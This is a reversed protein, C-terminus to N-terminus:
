RSISQTLAYGRGVTASLQYVKVYLTAQNSGFDTVQQASTYSVTPTSATLTRKLTAYSGSSYIDVEYSESTEGLPADVYDRWGAFRSRRTWTLTWDNTSPHRSGSLSVPSLCELNVGAYGFSLDADSDLAKGTTIGRYLRASGIASANVSIFQLVADDLLVLRDGTAHLGSAWETGHQGRLFDQLIYSGDPQLTATRAAIIEWRGDAGYAFWNNGAFLQAETVSALTGQYLRVALTSAFDYVTGGHATLSNSAYGIVAGPATFATVDSWSQGNDASSYLIGGPWGSLYGTMAVPFGARDDADRLLPIDLPVYLSPGDVSLVAGTSQGEEGQAAPTYISASAYKAQCEVRGDPLHHTSTLRLSYTAFDGNVTIVDGPELNAHSPPLTLAVDYREMWYLYLLTEAKGAAESGSFVIPLDLATENVADTNIREAYQENIDYERTSDLYKLSVRRPLILSMERADTISVGPEAGAARADLEGASITAVAAAGRRKFKIVYGHQVVDFPWAARLQDLGSRIAGLQSVRYGRVSDTLESVDIDSVGLLNSKLCEASVIAGLTTANSSLGTPSIVYVTSTGGNVTGYLLGNMLCLNHLTIGGTSITTWTDGLDESFLVGGTNPVWIRKDDVAFDTSTHTPMAKTSWSVGDASYALYSDGIVVFYGQHIHAGIRGTDAPLTVAAWSLGGDTSIAGNSLITVALWISNQTAIGIWNSVEPLRSVSLDALDSGSYVYDTPNALANTEYKHVLVYRGGSFAIDWIYRANTPTVVPTWASGNASTMVQYTGPYAGVAIFQNNLYRVRFWMGAQSAHSIWTGEGMGLLSGSYSNDEAVAVLKDASAGLAQWFGAVPLTQTGSYRNAAASMVVEVKVQAGLLSNGYKELPLNDFVLYALGRYAPVNAVGHDAQILPDATQTDTGRYLTFLEAKQNSAIVSAIDGAGADYWLQGGIWIRRVGDIPGECLGVAFSAYYSWTNTTQVPGGKGGTTTTTKVETLANGKLWFVNGSIAVSGYVRPIFAGYTSTQVSLDDLRPGNIVPGKPPDILGGAMMGIQAGRLAWGPGGVLFGIAGGVIGGVAQGVSSM